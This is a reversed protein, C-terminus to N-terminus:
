RTQALFAANVWGTGDGPVVIERWLQDGVHAIRGTSEFEAADHALTEIITGDTGPEDRVNLVDDTAVGVVDWNARLEEDYRITPDGAPEDAPVDDAPVDDAPAEDAPEASTDADFLGTAYGVAVTTAIVAIAALIWLWIKLRRTAHSSSTSVPRELTSTTPM